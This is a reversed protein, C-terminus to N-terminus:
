EKGYFTKFFIPDLTYIQYGTIQMQYSIHLYNKTIAYDAHGLYLRLFEMNGGGAIYSTAFTHRLLHPHLRQVTRKRLRRFFNKVASETIADLGNRTLVTSGGKPLVIFYKVLFDPLPILRNKNYKSNRVVIYNELLHLDEWTLNIVEQRRLGCDLMLHFILYNRAPYMTTKIYNDIIDVEPISLPLVMGPDPRPLKVKTFATDIYNNDLMWNCFTRVARHYTALSTNKIGTQKLHLLYKSYDQKTIAAYPKGHLAADVYNNFKTLNERYYQLTRPAASLTKELLFEDYLMKNNNM